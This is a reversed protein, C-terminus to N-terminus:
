MVAKRRDAQMNSSPMTTRARKTPGTETPLSGDHVTIEINMYVTLRQTVLTDLGGYHSTRFGRQSTMRNRDRNTGKPFATCRKVGKKSEHCCWTVFRAVKKSSGEGNPLFSSISVLTRRQSSRNALNENRTDNTENQRM